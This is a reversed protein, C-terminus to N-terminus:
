DVSETTVITVPTNMLNAAVDDQFGIRRGVMAYGDWIM